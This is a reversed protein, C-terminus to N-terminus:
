DTEPPEPATRAFHSRTVHCRLRQRPSTIPREAVEAEDRKLSTRGSRTLQAALVEGLDQSPLAYGAVHLTQKAMCSNEYILYGAAKQPSVWEKHARRAKVKVSM